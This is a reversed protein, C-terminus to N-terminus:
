LAKALVGAGGAASTMMSYAAKQFEPNRALNYFIMYEAAGAAMLASMAVASQKKDDPVDSGGFVGELWNPLYVYYGYAPSVMALVKAFDSGPDSLEGTSFAQMMRTIPPTLGGKTAVAGLAGIALETPDVQSFIKDIMDARTETRSLPKKKTM